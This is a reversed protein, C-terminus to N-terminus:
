NALVVNTRIGCVLAAVKM